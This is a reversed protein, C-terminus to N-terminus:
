FNVATKYEYTVTENEACSTKSKTLNNLFYDLLKDFFDPLTAPKNASNKIDSAFFHKENDPLKEWIKQIRVTWINLDAGKRMKFSSIIDNINITNGNSIPQMKIEMGKTQGAFQAMENSVKDSTIKAYIQTTEINKHGLMKSVSEISVGKVLALTAFTHRSLHFTLKKKIRCMKGIEKLYANTNQNNIVPLLRKNQLKDKYKEILIKPIATLPVQYSVDTKGRTDVIWSNGDFLTQLHDNTLNKADIYSLGTFCCFVFVDRVRELRKTEFEQQMLTEIEEQTLYGRDPQVITITYNIFPNKYIWENNLAVIIIHKFFQMYKATTNRACGRTTLLFREFDTIFKHNIEKLSIDSLNYENKMFEALHERTIRYKDCTSESIVNKDSLSKKEQNHADFVQLLYQHETELGLFVNKVKEASVNNERKLLDRYIRDIAAKTEDLLANIESAEKSRGSVKGANVDWLASNIDKKMGFSKDKGNITIRCHIPINGNAKQKDRKLFFLVKFTSRM